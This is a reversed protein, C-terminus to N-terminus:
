HSRRYWGARLYSQLVCRQGPARATRSAGVFSRRAASGPARVRTSGHPGGDQRLRQHVAHRAVTALTLETVADCHAVRVDSFEDDCSRLTIVAGDGLVDAAIRVAREVVPEADLTIAAIMGDLMELASDRTCAARPAVARSSTLDPVREDRDFNPGSVASTVAGCV